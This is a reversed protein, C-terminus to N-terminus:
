RANGCRGLANLSRATCARSRWGSSVSAARGRCLRQNFPEADVAMRELRAHLKQMYNAPARPPLKFTLLFGIHMPTDRTELTLFSADQASLRIM